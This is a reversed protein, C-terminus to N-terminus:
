QAAASGTALRAHIRTLLDGTRFPKRLYDSAGAAMALDIVAADTETSIILIPASTSLRLQRCVESGDLDPLVLDLLVLDPHWLPIAAVAQAGTPVRLSDYGAHALVLVAMEANAPNGEVILVKAPAPSCEHRKAPSLQNRTM